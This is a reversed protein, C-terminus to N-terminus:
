KNPAAPAVAPGAQASAGPRTDRLRAHLVLGLLGVTISSGVVLLFAGRAGQADAIGGVLAAGAGYGVNLGTSIWSLGETLARAPVIEQVLGFAAILAPAIGIGLVFSAVALVPVNVTALLAAPLVAFVLAQVRFRDLLDARWGVAGYALGSVGSGLAIAALVLGSLGRQGHQGCYAIM